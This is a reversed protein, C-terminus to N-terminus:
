LQGKSLSEYLEPNQKRLKAGVEQDKWNRQRIEAEKNWKAQRSDDRAKVKEPDHIACYLGEPGFGRKRNCQHFGVSRGVDHVSKICRTIDPRRQAWAFGYYKPIKLDSM